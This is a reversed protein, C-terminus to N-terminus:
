QIEIAEAFVVKKIAIQVNRKKAVYMILREYCKTVVFNKEYEFEYQSAGAM